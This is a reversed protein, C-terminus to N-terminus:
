YKTVVKGTKPDIYQLSPKHKGREADRLAPSFYQEFDPTFIKNLIGTADRYYKAPGSPNSPLGTKAQIDNDMSQQYSKLDTLKADAIAKTTDADAKRAAAASLRSDIDTKQQQKKILIREEATKDISQNAQELAKVNLAATISKGLDELGSMQPAQTSIVSGAGAGSGGAALVPSLGAAKLDAIRRQMSTDERAFIQNQLDKQYRLNKEQQQKNWYGQVISGGATMAGGALAGIDLGVSFGM